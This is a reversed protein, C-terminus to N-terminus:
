RNGPICRLARTLLWSCIVHFAHLTSDKETNGLVSSCDLHNRIPVMALSAVLIVMATWGDDTKELQFGHLTVAKVDVWEEHRDRDLTEWCSTVQSSDKIQKSAQRLQRTLQLNLL